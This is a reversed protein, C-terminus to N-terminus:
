GVCACPWASMCGYDRAPHPPDAVACRLWGALRGDTITLLFVIRQSMVCAFRLVKHPAIRAHLSRCAGCGCVCTRIYMHLRLIAINARPDVNTGGGVDDRMV